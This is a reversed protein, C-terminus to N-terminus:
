RKIRAKNEEDLTDFNSSRKGVIFLCAIGFNLSGKLPGILCKYKQIKQRDAERM